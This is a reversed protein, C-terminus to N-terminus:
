KLRVPCLCPFGFVYMKGLEETPVSGNADDGPAINFLAITRAVATFLFDEGIHRGPCVRFM